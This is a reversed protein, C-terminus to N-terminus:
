ASAVVSATESLFADAFSVHPEPVMSQYQIDGDQKLRALLEEFAVEDIDRCIYRVIPLSLTFLGQHWVKNAKYYERMEKVTQRLKGVATNDIM